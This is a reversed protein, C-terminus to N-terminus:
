IDRRIWYKLEYQKVRSSFLIYIYKLNFQKKSIFNRAQNTWLYKKLYILFILIIKNIIYKKLVRLNTKKKVRHNYVWRHYSSM